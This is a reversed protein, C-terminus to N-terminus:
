GVDDLVRNCLELRPGWSQTIAVGIAQQSARSQFVFEPSAVRRVQQADADTASVSWNSEPIGDFDINIRDLTADVRTTVEIRDAPELEYWETAFFAYSEGVRFRVRGDGSTELTLNRTNPGKFQLLPILGPKLGRPGVEVAVVLNRMEVTVWPEYHDGTAVYLAQCDGIIQVRDAPANAPLTSSQAVLRGARGFVDAPGHRLSLFQELRQGRATLRAAALGAAGNTFTGFAAAIVVTVVALRRVSPRYADVRRVLTVVAVAGCIIMGPLFDATYRHAIYGYLMVGSGAALAGVVPIILGRVKEVARLRIAGIFGVVGFVFLLPAFAPVSGTRYAQDIIAGRYGRAPEAPLSIFPFYPTFRIGDPRFYNVVTSAFFRPGTITGGNMMLALRRRSSIRTWQQHELPFMYPHRFKVWNVASGVVIAIAGGAVLVLAGRTNTRRVVGIAGVVVVTVAIAWGSTTRTLITATAFVATPVAVGITPRRAFTIIGALAAVACATAWLYAEHYVWPLAALFVIVSGGTVAALFTGAVWSEIKSVVAFGRILLRTNWLLIATATALLLWALLMMPASLRGDLRDTLLLVPARLLAPLPPFYMYTHENVVFGEVGLSQDPVWLHGDLLARAQIDYFNSAFGHTGARRLPDLGFDWLVCVYPVFGAVVGGIISRRIRSRDATSFSDSLPRDHDQEPEPADLQIDSEVKPLVSLM